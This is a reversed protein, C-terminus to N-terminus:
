NRLKIAVLSILALSKIEKFFFISLFFVKMLTMLKSNKLQFIENEINQSLLTSIHTVILSLLEEDENNFVGDHKNILEIIAFTKDDSNKIPYCLLNKIKIKKEHDLNRSFNM